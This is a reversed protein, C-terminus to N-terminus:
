LSTLFKMDASCILTHNKSSIYTRMFYDIHNSELVDVIEQIIEKEGVRETDDILICFREKLNDKAIGVIQSRSYHPSGFPGDVLVFDFKKGALKKDIDKYTLTEYGKYEITELETLCVTIDYEGDRGENFFSMWDSDHEYTVADVHFYHAYQHVMKSSQGLGFEVISRPKMSNLVRYMTYLFGFDVAAGGPSFNKYRLWESDAITSNFILGKLIERQTAEIRIFRNYLSTRKIREKILKKM